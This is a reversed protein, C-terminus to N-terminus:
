PWIEGGAVAFEPLYDGPLWLVKLDGAEGDHDGQGDADGPLSNM